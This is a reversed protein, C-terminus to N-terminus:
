GIMDAWQFQTSVSLGLFGELASVDNTTCDSALLFIESDQKEESRESAKEM